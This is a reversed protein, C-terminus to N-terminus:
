YGNSIHRAVVGHIRAKAARGRTAVKTASFTGDALQRASVALRTGLAVGLRHTHVTRVLGATSVVVAHRSTQKAVVIGGFTAAGATAPLVFVAAAALPLLFRKM